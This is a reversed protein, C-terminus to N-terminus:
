GLVTQSFQGFLHGKKVLYRVLEETNQPLPTPTYGHLFAIVPLDIAPKPDPEYIIYKNIGYGRPEGKMKTYVYDYGGPGDKPQASYRVDANADASVALLTTVIATAITLAYKNSM